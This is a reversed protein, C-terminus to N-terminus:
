RNTSKEWKEFFFNKEIKGMKRNKGNKSKEEMKRRNKKRDKSQNGIKKRNKIFAHSFKELSNCSTAM